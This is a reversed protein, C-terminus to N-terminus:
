RLGPWVISGLSIEDPTVQAARALPWAKHVASLVTEEREHGLASQLAQLARAGGLRGLAGAAAVRVPVYADSELCGILSPASAPDAIAGLAEVTERRTQVFGLHAVLPQVARADKLAGLAALIRKCLAGRQRLFRARRGARSNRAM